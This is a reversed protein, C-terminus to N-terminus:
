CIQRSENLILLCSVVANIQFMIQSQPVLLLTLAIVLFQIINISNFALIINWNFIWLTEIYATVQEIGLHGDEADKYYGLFELCEPNGLSMAVKAELTYITVKQMNEDTDVKSQKVVGNIDDPTLMIEDTLIFEEQIEGRLPCMKRAQENFTSERLMYDTLFMKSTEQVSSEIILGLTNQNFVVIESAEIKELCCEFSDIDYTKLCQEILTTGEMTMQMDYLDGIARM